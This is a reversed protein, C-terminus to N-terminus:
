LTLALLLRIHCPHLLLRVNLRDSPAKYVCRPPISSTIYTRRKKDMSLRDISESFIRTVYIYQSSSTIRRAEQQRRELSYNPELM